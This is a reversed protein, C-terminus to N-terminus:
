SDNKLSAVAEVLTDQGRKFHYRGRVNGQGDVLFFHLDHAIDRVGEDSKMPDGVLTKFGDRIFTFLADPEGTLLTWGKFDINRREGYAKLINPHDNDPDVTFSVMHVDTHGAAQLKDRTDQMAAMM